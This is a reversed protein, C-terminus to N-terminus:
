GTEIFSERDFGESPAPTPNAKSADYAIVGTPMYKRPHGVRLPYPLDLTPAILARLPSPLLFPSPPPPM